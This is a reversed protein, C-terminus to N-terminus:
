ANYETVGVIYSAYTAWNTATKWATVLNDPVVIKCNANIGSFANANSLTPVSTNVTFDYKLCNNNGSFAQQGISTIDGMFRMQTISTCGYFLFAQLFTIGPPIKSVTIKACGRFASNGLSTLSGPLSTIPLDACGYFAQNGIGELRSPLGVLKLSENNLFANQGISLVSDPLSTLALKRCGSFLGYPITTTNKPFNEIYALETCNYFDYASLDGSVHNKPFHYGVLSKDLLSGGICYEDPMVYTGTIMTGNVAATKGQAIDSEAATAGTSKDATVSVAAYQTVDYTGDDTISLEGAPFVGQPVAVHATGIRRVDHDGNNVITVETTPDPIPAIDVESLVYGNDPLITQAEYTPTASKIQEPKVSAETIVMKLPSEEQITLRIDAM